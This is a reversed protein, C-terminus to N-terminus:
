IRGNLSNPDVQTVFKDAPRTRTPTVSTDESRGRLNLQPQKPSWNGNSMVLGKWDKRAKDSRIKFGDIDDIINHTGRKPTLLGTTM